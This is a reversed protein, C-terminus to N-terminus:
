TRKKQTFTLIEPTEYKAGKLAGWECRQTCGMRVKSHVKQLGFVSFDGDSLPKLAKWFIRLVIVLLKDLVLPAARQPFTSLDSTSDGM